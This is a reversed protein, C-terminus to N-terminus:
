ARLRSLRQTVQRLVGQGIEKLTLKDGIIPGSKAITELLLGRAWYSPARYNVLAWIAKFYATRVLLHHAAGFHNGHLIQYLNDSLAQVFYPSVRRYARVQVKAAEALLSLLQSVTKADNHWRNASIDASVGAFKCGAAALRLWLDYDMVYRLSRDIGGVREYAARRFFVSPQAMFGKEFLEKSVDGAVSITPYDRERQGGEDIYHGHGVIVEAESHAAIASSVVHLAQNTQMDDSNLWALWEHSALAFGKHLAHSQGEDKESWWRIADGYSRLIEVTGDTSGGDMVIVELAPYSQGLLSDLAARIFRGHQFSPIVVSFRVPKLDGASGRAKSAVM